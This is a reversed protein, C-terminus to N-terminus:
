SKKFKFKVNKLKFTFLHLYHIITKICRSMSRIMNHRPLPNKNNKQITFFFHQRAKDQLDTHMKTSPKQLQGLKMNKVYGTPIHNQFCKTKKKQTM